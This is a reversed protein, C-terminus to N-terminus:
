ERWGGRDGVFLAHCLEGLFNDMIPVSVPQILCPPSSQSELGWDGSLLVSTSGPIKDTKCPRLKDKGPGALELCWLLGFLHFNMELASRAKGGFFGKREQLGDRHHPRVLEEKEAKDGGGTPM